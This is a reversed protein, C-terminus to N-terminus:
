CFKVVSICAEFHEICISVTLGDIKLKSDDNSVDFRYVVNGFQGLDEDTASITAIPTDVAADEKVKYSLSYPAFQPTNDNIDQVSISVTATSSKQPDGNDMAVVTVELTPTKERDLLKNLKLIGTFLTTSVYDFIM